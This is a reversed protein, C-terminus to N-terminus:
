GEPTTDAPPTEDSPGPNQRRAEVRRVRAGRADTVKLQYAGLPITDGPRALRGLVAQLYGGITDVEPLEDLTVELRTLVEELRASGEIRFVGGGTRMVDPPESDFEDQVDGVIEEIVDELTVIGSAGGYEDVVIAMHLRRRQFTRLLRDAPMTEPVFLVERMIGRLDPVRDTALPELLDKIHVIGVAQDLSGQCVPFRTHGSRRMTMLNESAPRDLSLSVVDPRPIMIQRATLRPFDLLNELLDGRLHGLTGMEQSRSLIMRLEEESHALDEAAAPGLGTVKLVVNASANFLWILPYFLYYFVRLPGAIMLVVKVPRAIALSKPALEGLVVHMYTILLFATTGAVTHALVPAMAGAGVLPPELLEAVAPEGVWGLGLSAVTIGVQTASLHTDLRGVIRRGWRAAVSGQRALEEMRTKRVKVISFEALVFFANLLVLLFAIFLLSASLM